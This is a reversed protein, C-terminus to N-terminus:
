YGLIFKCYLTNREWEFGCHANEQHRFHVNRLVTLALSKM